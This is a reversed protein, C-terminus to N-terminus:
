DRYDAAYKQEAAHRAAGKKLCQMLTPNGCAGAVRLDGGVDLRAKLLV